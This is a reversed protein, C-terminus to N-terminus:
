VVIVLKSTTETLSRIYHTLSQFLKDLLRSFSKGVKTKVTHSFPPNLWKINRTRKMINCHLIEESYKLSSKYGSKHLANEYVPKVTKFVQENASNECLRTSPILQNKLQKPRTILSHILTYCITTLSRIRHILTWSSQKKLNTNVELQFGIEKFM